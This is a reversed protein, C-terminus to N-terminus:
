LLEQILYLCNLGPHLTSIFRATIIFSHVNMSIDLCKQKLIYSNYMIYMIGMSFAVLKLESPLTQLLLTCMKLILFIVRVSIHEM